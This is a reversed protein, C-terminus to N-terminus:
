RGAKEDADADEVLWAPPDQRDVGYMVVWDGVSVHGRGLERAAERLSLGRGYYLRRLTAPDRYTRPPLLRRGLREDARM